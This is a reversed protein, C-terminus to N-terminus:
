ASQVGASLAANLADLHVSRGAEVWGAGTEIRIDGRALSGDTQVPLGLACDVILAADAPNLFLVRDQDADSISGAAAIVQAKLWEADIPAHAIIQGVLREVSYAIMAALDESSEHHFAEASALLDLLAKREIAQSIEALERGENVGRAFADAISEEGPLAPERDGRLFGELAFPMARFGNQQQMATALRVQTAGM